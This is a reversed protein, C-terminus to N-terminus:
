RNWHKSPKRVLKKFKGIYSEFCFDSVNELCGYKQADDPLHIVNHVNLVLMDPGYIESYHKVFLVLLQEAYDIYCSDCCLHKNLLIFMGAYLLLFNNYVVEPLKGRFVVSGTTCYFNGLSQQKGGKGNWCHILSAPLSVHCLLDGDSYIILFKLVYVYLSVPAPM